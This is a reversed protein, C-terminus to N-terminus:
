LLGNAKLFAERADRKGDNYGKIYPPLDKSFGLIMTGSPVRQKDWETSFQLALELLKEYRPDNPDIM